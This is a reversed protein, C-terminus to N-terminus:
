STELFQSLSLRREWDILWSKRATGASYGGLSGDAAIVRHCPVIIGIPNRGNAAGVARSAGPQGVARALEGYSITQGYPIRLLAEWVRRQFPTGELCLVLDFRTRTGAFYEAIQSAEPALRSPDERFGSSSPDPAQAHMSLGVLANGRKTLVLPGVPSPVTAFWTIAATNM